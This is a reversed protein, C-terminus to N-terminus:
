RVREPSPSVGASEDVVDFLTLDNERRWGPVRALQAAREPSLQGRRQLGRQVTVWQGLRYGAELHGGPVRCHGERAAFAHLAALGGDWAADRMDWAWAPLAALRATRSNSLEGSKHRARQVIVWQGLRLGNECHGTAPRAHGEREVFERLAAHHEEWRAERTDWVWGTVGALRAARDAPVKGRKHENRHRIVWSGLQLDGVVHDTPVRAHGHEAAFACLAAFHREWVDDHPAWSWGPLSELAQTRDPELVGRRHRDRQEGVWAGAPYNGEMHGRPVCAHGERATFAVAADYGDQWADAKPQWSWGPVQELRAIRDPDLTGTRYLTRQRAAWGDLDIGNERHRTPLRTHGHRDSFQCLAAYAEEWSVDLLNDFTWGPLALLRSRQDDRLERRHGPKRHTMVWIGLPYGDAERYAVPVRATGHSDVYAVLRQYGAEWDESPVDWVWGPVAALRRVRDDHLAARRYRARQASVWGGLRQGEVEYDDPVRAHGHEVVFRLLQSYGAEWRDARTPGKPTGPIRIKKGPRRRAVEALAEALRRPEDEGVYEAVAKPEVHGMECLRQLVAAAVTKVPPDEPVAVDATGVAALPHERVRLVEFGAGRLLDSKRADHAERGAHTYAGDLEVVVRRSPLLLDVHRVVGDITVKDADLDLEPFVTQLEYALCIELTSRLHVVCLRCGKGALRNAGTSQWEHAPNSLCQWWLKRSTGAVVRDPTLAGNKTPHWEAALQPHAAVTNSTSPRLGRCFPCGTNGAAVARAILLPTRRWVHDEAVPCQWAYEASATGALVDDPTVNGNLTPHWLTVGDPCRSAFSNTVSLQRGACAPCGFGRQTRLVVQASWVHDPAFPCSWWAALHSTAVVDSPRRAGNRSPHWQEAIDPFLVDLRNTVSPQRAACCPCGSGGGVRGAPTARWEHDPGEPCLWWVDRNSGAVLDSPKLTGNRTPHWQSAVDPAVLDLRNTVSVRLGRCFPCGRSGDQVSRHVSQVSAAWAHDPGAPCRWHRKGTSGVTVQQATVPLNADADWLACLGPVALVAPLPM